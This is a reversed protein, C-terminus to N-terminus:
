SGSPKVLNIKIEKVEVPGGDPGSLTTPQIAKGHGREIIALAATIKNRENEGTEMIKLLVALADLSKERCMAELTRQEDTKPPRGGPNGSVGPAFATKPAKRKPSDAKQRNESM